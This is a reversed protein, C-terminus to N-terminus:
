AEFEMIVEDVALSDGPLSLRFHYTAEPGIFPSVYLGKHCTQEIPNAALAVPILYGHQDGFTNKVEYLIARLVETEDYCYYISLPNFVYGLVRPYCLLRIRWEAAVLGAASLHQVVWPKIASGDRAGHDRDYFGFLNFRNHSLFRLRPLYDLDLWLSFVRYTFGHRFPLLRQHMVTGTYLGPQNLRRAIAM